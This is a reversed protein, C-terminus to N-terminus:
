RRASYWALFAALGLVIALVVTVKSTLGQSSSVSISAMVLATLSILISPKNHPPKWCTGTPKPILFSWILQTTSSSLTFFFIIIIYIIKKAKLFSSSIIIILSFFFINQYQSFIYLLVLLNSQIIQGISDLFEFIIDLRNVNSSHLLDLFLMKKYIDKKKKRLWCTDHLYFFDCCGLEVFYHFFSLRTNYM